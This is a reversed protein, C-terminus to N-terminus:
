SGIYKGVKRSLIWSLITLCVLRFPTPCNWLGAWSLPAWVQTDPYCAEENYLSCFYTISHFVNSHVETGWCERRVIIHEKTIVASMCLIIVFYILFVWGGFPQVYVIFLTINCPTGWSSFGQKPSHNLEKEM